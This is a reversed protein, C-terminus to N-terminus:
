CHSTRTRIGSGFKWGLIALFGFSLTANIATGMFGGQLYLNISASPLTSIPNSKLSFDCDQITNSCSPTKNTMSSYAPFVGGLGTFLVIILVVFTKV